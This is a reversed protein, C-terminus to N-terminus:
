EQRRHIVLLLGSNLQIKAAETLMENSIGRSTEMYLTEGLLPWRLGETRVGVAAGGWPILAVIDGAEGHVSSRSRCFFAEELGDDLRCDLGALRSDTLIALNGLTHDLRNGLAAVILISSPQQKLAYQLSLELDTQDKDHPFRIVAIGAAEIRQQEADSVSDLDGIVAQPILGLAFAHRSGGDACLITDDARLLLRAHVLDPLLGNAFIVIRSM